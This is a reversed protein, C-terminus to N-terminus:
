NPLHKRYRIHTGICTDVKDTKTKRINNKHMTFTKLPNLVCMKYNKAVLYQVLNNGYHVTSKLGIILIDKDLLNPKSILMHYGDNNNAFKFPRILEEGDSSISSVFHNLKAIDIGVYIM